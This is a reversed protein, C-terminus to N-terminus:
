NNNLNIINIAKPKPEHEIVRDSVIINHIALTLWLGMALIAFIDYFTLM